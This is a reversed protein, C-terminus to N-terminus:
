IFFGGKRLAIDQGNLENNREMQTGNQIGM